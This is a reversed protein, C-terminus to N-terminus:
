YFCTKSQYIIPNVSASFTFSSCIVFDNQAVDLLILALHIAATGSALAAVKYNSSINSIEKEFCDLTTRGSCDIKLFAEDVYKQENDSIHSTVAMNKTTLWILKM